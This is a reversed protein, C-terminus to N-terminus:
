ALELVSKVLKSIGEYVESISGALMYAPTTVIKNAEDVICETAKANVHIHGMSEIMSAFRADDGLTLKANVGLIELAKGLSGPAICIAGIPKKSKVFEGVVRQFEPHVSCEPGKELFTSLNIAAGQGAPIILADLEDVKMKKMSQINGRSIRASEVLADRLEDMAEGTSHDRVYKQAEQPAFFHMEAGAMDLALITCTAEHVESGDRHGCGCLLVGVNKYMYGGKDAEVWFDRNSPVYGKYGWM